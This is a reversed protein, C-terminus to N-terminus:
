PPFPSTFAPLRGTPASPHQPGPLSAPPQCGQQSFPRRVLSPHRGGSLGQPSPQLAFSPLLLFVSAPRPTPLRRGEAAGPGLSCSGTQHCPPPQQPLVALTTLGLSCRPGPIRTESPGVPKQQSRTPAPCRARPALTCTLTPAPLQEGLGRPRGWHSRPTAPVTLQEILAGATHSTLLCFDPVGALTVAWM